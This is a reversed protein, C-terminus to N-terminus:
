RRIPPHIRQLTLDLKWRTRGHDPQLFLGSTKYSLGNLRMGGLEPMKIDRGIFQGTRTFRGRADRTYIRSIGSTACDTSSHRVLDIVHLWQCPRYSGDPEPILQELEAAIRLHDVRHPFSLGTFGYPVLVWRRDIRGTTSFAAEGSGGTVFRHGAGPDQWGPADGLVLSVPVGPIGVTSELQTM